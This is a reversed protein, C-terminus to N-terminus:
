THNRSQKSLPQSILATTEPQLTTHHIAFKHALLERLKTLASEWNSMNNVEVHATLVFKGSTLTWIHLDHIAMVNEITKMQEEVEQLDLHPPVGEMLVLLTERLLRFSSILILICIFISLIPDILTWHTFAIVIGAVLAAVSGLLDGFVHLLAARMNLNSEGRSLIWAILLNIIIGAIAVGAVVKGAVEPPSKFRNFAEVTIAIGVIVVFLSSIWAGLVEARGLGYTHQKSPPKNAIWAAFAALVLSLADAVMHGADSLLTLSNSLWGSLAEILAFSFALIVAIVLIRTNAHSHSHNHAHDHDHHHHHHHHGM